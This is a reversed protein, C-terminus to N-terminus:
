PVTNYEPQLPAIKNLTCYTKLHIYDLKSANWNWADYARQMEEDIDVIVIESYSFDACAMPTNLAAVSNLLEVVEFTRGNLSAYASNKNVNIIAKM